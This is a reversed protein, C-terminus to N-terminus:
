PPHTFFGQLYREYDLGNNDPKVDAHVQILHTKRVSFPFILHYVRGFLTHDCLQTICFITLLKVKM